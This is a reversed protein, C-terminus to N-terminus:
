NSEPFTLVTTGRRGLDAISHVDPLTQPDWMLAVPSRRMPAFVSTVPQQDALAISQDMDVGGLMISDDLYLLRGAPTFSKAPGGSAITLNVGTTLGGSTLPATVKKGETDVSIPGGLLQYLAAYEVQPWWNTQVVVTAPCVGRLDEPGGANAAGSIASGPVTVAPAAASCATVLGATLTWTAIRRLIRAAPRHSGNPDIRESPTVNRVM